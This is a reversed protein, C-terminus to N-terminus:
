QGGSRGSAAGRSSTPSTATRHFRALIEQTLVTNSESADWHCNTGCHSLCGATMQPTAGCCSHCHAECIEFNGCKALKEDGGLLTLNAGGAGPQLLDVFFRGEVSALERQQPAGAPGHPAHPGRAPLPPKPPLVRHCLDCHEHCTLVTAPDPCCAACHMLCQTRHGCSSLNGRHTLEWYDLADQSFHVSGATVKSSHAIGEGATRSATM